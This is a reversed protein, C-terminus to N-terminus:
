YLRLIIIIRFWCLNWVVILINEVKYVPIIVSILETKMDEQIGETM